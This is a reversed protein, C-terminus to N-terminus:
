TWVRRKNANVVDRFVPHMGPDLYSTSGQQFAKSRAVLLEDKNRQIWFAVQMLIAERVNAPARYNNTDYGGQYTAKVRSLWVGSYREISGVEDDVDITTVTRAESMSQGLDWEVVELGIIHPYLDLYLVPYKYPVDLKWRQSYTRRSWRRLTQEEFKEVAADITLQLRTAEVQAALKIHNRVELATIM